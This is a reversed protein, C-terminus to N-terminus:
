PQPLAVLQLTSDECDFADTFGARGLEAPGLSRTSGDLFFANAKGLHRLGPRTSGVIQFEEEGKANCSDMVLPFRGPYKVSALTLRMLGSEEPVWTVGAYPSDAFNVGYCNVHYEGPEPATPCHMLTLDGRTELLEPELQNAIVGFPFNILDGSPDTSLRLHGHNEVTDRLLASGCQRIQALCEASQARAKASRAVALASVSLLAVIVIAVLLEVLTFGSPSASRHSTMPDPFARLSGRRHPKPLINM